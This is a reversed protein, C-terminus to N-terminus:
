GFVLFLFTLLHSQSLNPKQHRLFDFSCVTRIVISVDLRFVDDRRLRGDDEFFRWLPEFDFRFVLLFRLDEFFPELRFRFDFREFTIM